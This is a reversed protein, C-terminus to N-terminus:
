GQAFLAEPPSSPSDVGSRQPVVEWNSTLATFVPGVVTVLSERSPNAPWIMPPQYWPLRSRLTKITKPRDFHPPVLNGCTQTSTENQQRNQKPLDHGTSHDRILCIAVSNIPIFTDGRVGERAFLVFYCLWLIGRGYRTASFGHTTRKKRSTIAPLLLSPTRWHNQWRFGPTHLLQASSDALGM